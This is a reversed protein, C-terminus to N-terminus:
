GGQIAVLLTVLGFACLLCGFAVCGWAGRLLASTQYARDDEDTRGRAIEPAAGLGWRGLLLLGGGLLLLVVGAFVQPTEM